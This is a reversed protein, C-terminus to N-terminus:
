AREMAATYEGRRAARNCRARHLLIRQAEPARSDDGRWFDL